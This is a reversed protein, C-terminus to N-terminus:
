NSIAKKLSQKSMLMVVLLVAPIGLAAAYTFFATYGTAEVVMGSFGGIIKAPLTMLSSFLAYQTATYATNTLSSLYALFAATAIGGSLNDASIVLALWAIEPTQRALWSFLLNTAAVLIAGLLLPRVIGFRSVIIGGLTTGFITMFLGFIKSVGAIEEKSYGMDLYFPNAMVGMTIDSIRYLGVLALIAIATKGYRSFFDVFPCIVAGILWAQLNRWRHPMHANAELFDIVRQEEKWTEDSIRREPEQVLLATAMGVSVLVAMVLYAVSWSSSAAIFFAGAGATLLALRYGLVYTAAMAGQLEVDVAEIRYADISIDQTASSFAVLLGLGAFLTLQEQPNSLAMGLLGIMVGLQGALMWSRRRGLRRTLWPIHLRDIVPAWFFKISFTIGIWSFFGIETLSVNADHLWASLTSFVLLYPLGSSFGLFAMTAVRPRTYVLLSQKWGRAPNPNASM